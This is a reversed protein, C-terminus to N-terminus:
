EGTNAAFTRSPSPRRAMFAALAKRSVYVRGGIREVKLGCGIWKRIASPSFDGAEHAAQKITMLDGADVKAQRVIAATSARLLTEVMHSLAAIEADKAHDRKKLAAVDSTLREIIAASEDPLSPRRNSM